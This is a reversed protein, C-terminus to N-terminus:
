SCDVVKWPKADHGKKWGWVEVRWGAHRVAGINQHDAIKKVRASVNTDSTAQIGITVDDKVALVDIFGFLDKKIFTKPITREVVDVTWGDSELAKVTLGTPSVM